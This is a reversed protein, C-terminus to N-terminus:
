YNNLVLSGLDVAVITVDHDAANMAVLPSGPFGSLAGRCSEMAAMSYSYDEVTDEFKCIDMATVVKEMRGQAMSNKYLCQEVAAREDALLSGFLLLEEAALITAGYSETAATAAASAYVTVEATEPAHQLAEQCTNYMAPTSSINLCANSYTMTPVKNCAYGAMFLTTLSFGELGNIAGAIHEGAIGYQDICYKYKAQEDAPLSANGMLQELAATSTQYNHKAMRTAVLTYLTVGATDPTNELAKMCLKYKTTVGPFMSSRM